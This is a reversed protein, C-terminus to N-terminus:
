VYRLLEMVKMHDYVPLVYNMQLSPDLKAHDLKKIIAAYKTARDNENRFDIMFRMVAGALLDAIQLPLNLKSDKFTLKMNQKIEFKAKKEILTGKIISDVNNNKMQKLVDHFIIDFQKQEDHIIDFSDKKFSQARAVINSFANLNPLLFIPRGKTNLDPIPLFAKLANVPNKIKEEFYDDRTREVSKLFMENEGNSGAKLHNILTQYFLELSNTTNTDMTQFFNEYVKEDLINRLKSAVLRKFAILEDTLRPFSYYPLFVYDVLQTNIFYQKDMVEIFIPIREKVLFDVLEDYFKINREYVNKAKLELTKIKYKVILKKVFDELNSQQKDDLFLAALVYFPQESFNFRLDKYQVSGTNGSEDIFLNM